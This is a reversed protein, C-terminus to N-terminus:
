CDGAVLVGGRVSKLAFYTLPRPEICPHAKQPAYFWFKVDVGKGWFVGAM